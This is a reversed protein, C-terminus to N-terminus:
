DVGDEFVHVLGTGGASFVRVVDDGAFGKGCVAGGAFVQDLLGIEGIERLSRAPVEIRRSPVRRTRKPIITM